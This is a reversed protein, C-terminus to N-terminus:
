NSDLSQDTRAHCRPRHDPANSGEVRGREDCVLVARMLFPPQCITGRDDDRDVRSVDRDAREPADLPLAGLREARAPEGDRATPLSRM